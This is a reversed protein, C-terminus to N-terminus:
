QFTGISPMTKIEIDQDNNSTVDESYVAATASAGTTEEIEVNEAIANIIQHEEGEVTTFTLEFDVSLSGGAVDSENWTFTGSLGTGSYGTPTTALKLDTFIGTLDTFSIGLSGDYSSPGDTINIQLTYIISNSEATANDAASVNDTADGTDQCITADQGTGLSVIADILPLPQVDIELIIYNSCGGTGGDTITVEINGDTALPDQSYEIDFTLDALNTSAFNGVGSGDLTITNGDHQVNSITVNEGTYNIEVTGENGVENHLIQVDSLTYSYKSGPYVSTAQANAKETLLALGVMMMLTFALKKMM